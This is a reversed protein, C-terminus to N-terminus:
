APAGRRGAWEAEVKRALAEGRIRARCTECILCGHPGRVRHVSANDRRAAGDVRSCRWGALFRRSRHACPVSRAPDGSGGRKGSPVPESRHAWAHRGGHDRGAQRACLLRDRSGAVGLAALDGDRPGERHPSGIRCPHRSGRWPGEGPSIVHVIHLRAGLELALERAIRGAAESPESFDTAFVIDRLNM